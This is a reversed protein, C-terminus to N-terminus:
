KYSVCKGVDYDLEAKFPQLYSTAKVSGNLALIKSSSLKNYSDQMLKELYKRGPKHM